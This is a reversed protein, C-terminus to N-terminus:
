IWITLSLCVDFYFRYVRDRKFDFKNIKTKLCYFASKECDYKWDCKLDFYNLTTTM